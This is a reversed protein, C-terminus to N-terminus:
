LKLEAPHFVNLDLFSGRPSADRCTRVGDELHRLCEDYDSLNPNNGFYLYDRNKRIESSIFEIHELETSSSRTLRMIIEYMDYIFNYMEKETTSQLPLSTFAHPKPPSDLGWELSSFSRTIDTQLLDYYFQPTLWPYRSTVKGEVLQVYLIYLFM